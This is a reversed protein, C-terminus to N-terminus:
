SGQIKNSPFPDDLQDWEKVYEPASLVFSSIPMVCCEGPILNVIWGDDGPTAKAVEAMLTNIGNLKLVFFRLPVGTFDHQMRIIEFLFYDQHFCGQNIRVMPTTLEPDMESLWCDAQWSEPVKPYTM